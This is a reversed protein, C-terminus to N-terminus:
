RHKSHLKALIADFLQMQKEADPQKLIVRLQHESLGGLDSPEALLIKEQIAPALKIMMMIQTVRPQSIALQRAIEGFSKARGEALAQEIQYALVLTRVIPPLTSAKNGNTPKAKRMPKLDVEGELELM